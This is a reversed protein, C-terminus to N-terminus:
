RKIGERRQTTRNTHPIHPAPACCEIRAHSKTTQLVCPSWMPPAPAFFLLWERRPFPLSGGSLGSLCKTLPPTPTSCKKHATQQKCHMIAPVLDATGSCFAIMVPCVCVVGWVMAPAIPAQETLHFFSCSATQLSNWQLRKQRPSINADVLESRPLM